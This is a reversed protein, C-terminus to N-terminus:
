LGKAKQMFDNISEQKDKLYSQIEQINGMKSIEIVLEDKKKGDTENSYLELVKGEFNLKTKGFVIYGEVLKNLSMINHGIDLSLYQDFLDNMQGVTEVNHKKYRTKLKIKLKKM